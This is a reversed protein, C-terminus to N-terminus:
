TGWCLGVSPVNVISALRGVGIAGREAIRERERDLGMPRGLDRRQGDIGSSSEPITPSLMVLTRLGCKMPETVDALGLAM